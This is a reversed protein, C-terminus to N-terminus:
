KCIETMTRTIGDNYHLIHSPCIGDNYSEFFECLMIIQNIDISFYKVAYRIILLFCLYHILYGMMLYNRDPSPSWKKLLAWCIAQVYIQM